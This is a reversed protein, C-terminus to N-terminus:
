GSKKTDKSHLTMRVKQKGGEYERGDPWTEVGYGHRLDEHWEGAYESGDAWAYLGKGHRKDDVFEGAYSAGVTDGTEAYRHTHIYIYIYLCVCVCVCVCV